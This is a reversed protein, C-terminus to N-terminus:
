VFFITIQKLDFHLQPPENVKPAQFSKFVKEMPELDLNM